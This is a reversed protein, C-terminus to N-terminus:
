AGCGLGQCVFVNEVIKQIQLSQWVVATFCAAQELAATWRCWVVQRGSWPIVCTIAGSSRLRRSAEPASKCADSLYSPACGHLSKFMLTALKFVVRRRVPLWHLEQLVPSIHERRGTRTGPLLTRYLSCDNFYTTPSATRVFSLQLLGPSQLHVGPSIDKCRWTVICRPDLRGCTITHQADSQRWTTPWQCGATLVVGLYRASGVVGVTSSLVPVEHVTLRDINYRSGLWLVQTKSANLRLRSASCGSTSVTFVVRFSTVFIRIWWV